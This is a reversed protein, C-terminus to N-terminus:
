DQYGSTALSRLLQDILDNNKVIKYSDKVISIVENTDERVIAKYGNPLFSEQDDIDILPSKANDVAVTRLTVPFCFPQLNM